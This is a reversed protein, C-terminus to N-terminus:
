KAVAQSMAQAATLRTQLLADQADRLTAVAQDAEASRAALAKQAAQHATVLAPDITLVHVDAPYHDTVDVYLSQEYDVPHPAGEAVFVTSVVTGDAAMKAFQRFQRPDGAVTIM